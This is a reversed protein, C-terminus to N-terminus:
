KIAEKPPEFKVAAPALPADSIDLIKVKFTLQKGALPHNFDVMVKDGKIEAITAPFSEGDPSEAQLVMGVQPEPNKPMSSKPFEKIAKPDVDGYADKPPIVLTKEEGVKMGEIGNELGPILSNDGQIFELPEKGVSTEIEEKDVTLTYDMKVKKGKTVTVDVALAMSSTVGILVGASLIIKALNM